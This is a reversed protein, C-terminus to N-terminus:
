STGKSLHCNPSINNLCTQLCLKKLCHKSNTDLCRIDAVCIQHNSLLFQMKDSSIEFRLVDVKNKESIKHKSNFLVAILGWISFNRISFYNIGFIHKETTLAQSKSM